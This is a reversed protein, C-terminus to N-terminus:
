MIFILNIKLSITKLNLAHAVRSFRFPLVSHNSLNFHRSVPKTSDNIRVDYLHERIRDGLRHGTEVINLAIFLM